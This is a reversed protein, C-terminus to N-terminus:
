FHCREVKLSFVANALWYFFFIIFKKALTVYRIKFYVSDRNVILFAYRLFM